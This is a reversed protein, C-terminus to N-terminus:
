FVYEELVEKEVSTFKCYIKGDKFELATGFFGDKLRSGTLVPYNHPQVDTESPMDLAFKHTHGCIMLKLNMRNLEKAWKAYVARDIDFCGHMSAELMFSVHCIGIPYPTNELKVKKLFTAQRRRYDEFCNVGGYEVHNDLKDEGCDLAVGKINRFSFTFYSNNGDVGVYNKLTEARAGRTDHNGRVFLVPIRGKTIKGIFKNLLLIDKETRSEGYDGNIIVFDLDDYFKVLLEGSKYRNHMDALYYGKLGDVRDNKFEFSRRKEEELESYYAARKKLRKVIVEYRGAKDLTKQKVVIKHVKNLSPIIGDNEEGYIKRGIKVFVQSPKQTIIVFHYEDKVIFVNPAFRM